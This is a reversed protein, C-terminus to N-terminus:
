VGSEYGSNASLGLILEKLLTEGVCALLLELNRISCMAVVFRIFILVTPREGCPMLLDLLVM